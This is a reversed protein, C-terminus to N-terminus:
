TVETKEIKTGLPTEFTPLFSALNWMATIDNNNEGDYYKNIILQFQSIYFQLISPASWRNNEMNNFGISFTDINTYYDSVEDLDDLANALHWKNWEVKQTYFNGNSLDGVFLSASSEKDISLAVFITGSSINEIPIEDFTIYSYIEQSNPLAYGSMRNSGFLAFCYTEEGTTTDEGIRQVSLFMGKYEQSETHALSQYFAFLPLPHGLVMIYNINAYQIRGWMSVKDPITGFPLVGYRIESFDKSLHDPDGKLLYSGSGMSYQHNLEKTFIADSFSGHEGEIEGPNNDDAMNIIETTTDQFDMPSCIITKNSKVRETSLMDTMTASTKRTFQGYEATQHEATIVGLDTDEASATNFCLYLSKLQGATLLPIKVYVDIYPKGTYNNYLVQIPTTLDDDYIRIKNLEGMELSGVSDYLSLDLDDIMDVQVDNNDLVGTNNEDYIRIQVIADVFNKNNVNNIDITCYKEFEFPFRIKEKVNGFGVIGSIEASHKSQPALDNEYSLMISEDQPVSVLYGNGTTGSNNVKDVIEYRQSFYFPEAAEGESYRIVRFYVYFYKLQEILDGTLEPVSLNTIQFSDIWRADNKDTLDKKFFQMMKSNSIPSPNSEDGEKTVVTYVCQVIGCDDLHVDTLDEEYEASDYETTPELTAKNTPSKISFIGTIIEGDGDIKVYHPVVTTEEYTDTIIIKDDGITFELYSTNVTDSFYEIGDIEIQVTAWTTATEYFLHVEFGSATLGCALMVFDGTMGALKRIPYMPPSIQLLTQTFVTALVDNLDTGTGTGGKIGYEIPDKRKTVVNDGILEYNVSDQVEDDKLNEPNAQDNMGGALPTRKIM